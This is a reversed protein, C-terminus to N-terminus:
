DGLVVYKVSTALDDILQECTTDVHREGITDIPKALSNPQPKQDKLITYLTKLIKSEHTISDIL